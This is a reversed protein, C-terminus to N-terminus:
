LSHMTNDVNEIPYTRCLIPESFVESSVESFFLANHFSCFVSSFTLSLSVGRAYFLIRSESLLMIYVVVVMCSCLVFLRLVVCLCM